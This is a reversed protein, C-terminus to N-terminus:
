PSSQRQWQNGGGQKRTGKALGSLSHYQLESSLREYVDRLWFLSDAKVVALAKKAFTGKHLMIVVERWAEREMIM